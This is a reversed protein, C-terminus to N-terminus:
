NLSTKVVKIGERSAWLTNLQTNHNKAKGYQMVPKLLHISM